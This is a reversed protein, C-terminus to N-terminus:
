NNQKAFFRKHQPSHYSSRLLHSTKLSYHTGDNKIFEYYEGMDSGGYMSSRKFEQRSLVIEKM